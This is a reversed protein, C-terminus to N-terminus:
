FNKIRAFSPTMFYFMVKQWFLWEESEQEYKTMLYKVMSGVSKLKDTKKVAKLLSVGIHKEFESTFREKLDVDNLEKLIENYTM